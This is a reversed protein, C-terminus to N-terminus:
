YLIQQLQQLSFCESIDSTGTARCAVTYEIPSGNVTLELQGAETVPVFFSVQYTGVEALNFSTVSARTITTSSTPGDQPFSVDTGPAITATNDSPM